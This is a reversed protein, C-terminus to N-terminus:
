ENDFPKLLFEDLKELSEIQYIYDVKNKPDEKLPLFSLLYKVDKSNIIGDYNFDYINFILKATEEFSGLYLDTLFKTLKNLQIIIM